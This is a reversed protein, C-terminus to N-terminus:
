NFYHLKSKASLTNSGMGPWILYDGVAIRPLQIMDCIQDYGDYSSGWISCKFIELSDPQNLVRPPSISHNGVAKGFSGYIGDNIYIYCKENQERRLQTVRTILTFASSVLYRSPEAIIQLHRYVEEPFHRNLAANVVEAVDEFLPGHLAEANPFGGGIDLMSMAYGSRRALEFVDKAESISHQFQHLDDCVGGIHFSVGVLNLSLDRACDILRSWDARQAGFSEDFESSSGSADPSIRLMLNANPYLKQIKRLEPENDFTLVSIGATAAAKIHSNPKCPNSFIIKDTPLNLKRATELEKKSAVDFGCGSQALLTLVDADANCKLSHFPKVRPLYRQWMRAKYQIDRMDVLFFPSDDAQNKIVNEAYKVFNGDDGDVSSLKMTDCPPFAIDTETYLKM